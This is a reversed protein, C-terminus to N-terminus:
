KMVFELPVRTIHTESLGGKRRDGACHGLLVHDGEFHMATYCYWGHPNDALNKAKQWTRGEDNSIAITLPTRKGRLKPDINTHNNWVLLLTDTGPIREITAPSCPSLMTSPEFKSWTDGGDSSYSVYQTGASTRTFMMVRGDKLEVVGPEQTTIRAGKDTKATLTTKGSKWTKGADDSYYCSLFGAWDPKEWNPKHHLAVPVLLRGSKLQVVRDNNLVYYGIQEDPIVVTPASWTKAEDTSIRMIPRCDTHSNKRAYFLAIRGDQLRLLSVSMINFGGENALVLTDKDDWTRGGDSSFRGALHATAHDSGGGTFHSYIFFIRGDALKIFDGESNRPNTKGPPLLKIVQFADKDPKDAALATQAFATITFALALLCVVVPCPLPAHHHFM